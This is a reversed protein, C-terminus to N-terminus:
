TRGINTILDTKKQTYPSNLYIEKLELKKSIETKFVLYTRKLHVHM